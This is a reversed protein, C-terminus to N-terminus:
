EKGIQNILRDNGIGHPNNGWKNPIHKGELCVLVLLWIWGFVPFLLLFFYWGSKGVDHLRRLLVAISPIFIIMAYVYALSTFHYTDFLFDLLRLLLVIILNILMFIWFEKRSARGSFNFYQNFVKLYWNM